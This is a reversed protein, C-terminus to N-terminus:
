KNSEISDKFYVTVAGCDSGHREWWETLIEQPCSLGIKLELVLYQVPFYYNEVVLKELIIFIQIIQIYRNSMNDM